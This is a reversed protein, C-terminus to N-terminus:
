NPFPKRTEAARESIIGRPRRVSGIKFKRMSTMMESRLDRNAFPVCVRPCLLITPSPPLPPLSPSLSLGKLLQYKIEESVESLRAVARARRWRRMRETSIKYSSLPRICKCCSGMKTVACLLSPAYYIQSVFFSLSLLFRFSMKM